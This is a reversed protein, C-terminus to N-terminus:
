GEDHWFLRLTEGVHYLLVGVFGKLSELGEVLGAGPKEEFVIIVEGLPQSHEKRARACRTLASVDLDERGVYITLRQLGPLPIEDNTTVGLVVFFPEKECNVITLNEVKALVKFASRVGAATQKWPQKPSNSYYSAWQGVWLERIELVSIPSFSTFFEADFDGRTGNFCWLRLNGGPGSLVCSNPMAVAKTIGRMIPLHDISSPHIRAAHFGHRDFEAGTFLGKLRMETCKPLILHDLLGYSCTSQDFTLEKLAALRVRKRPPPTPPMPIHFLCIDIFELLPCRGLFSTLDHVSMNTATKFKFRTLSPFTFVRLNTNLYVLSLNLLKPLQAEFITNHLTMDRETASIENVIELHKLEPASRTFRKLVPELHELNSGIKLRQLRHLNHLTTSLFPEADEETELFQHIDLPQDESRGLFGKAQKSKSTSFDIQTWLSPAALLVNRWSRCVHTMTILPENM